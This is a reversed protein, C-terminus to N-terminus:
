NTPNHRNIFRFRALLIEILKEIDVLPPGSHIGTDVPVGLAVYLPLLLDTLAPDHIGDTNIINIAQQLINGSLINAFAHDNSVAELYATLLTAPALDHRIIKVIYNTSALSM